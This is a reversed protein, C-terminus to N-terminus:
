KEYLEFRYTQNTINDERDKDIKEAFMEYPRIYTKYDGYMAQYVVYNEGTETHIAIDQVYYLNGKFHRYLRKSIIERM